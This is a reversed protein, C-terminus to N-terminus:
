KKSLLSNLKSSGYARDDVDDDSDSGDKYHKKEKMYDIYPKKEKHSESEEEPKEVVDHAQLFKTVAANYISM